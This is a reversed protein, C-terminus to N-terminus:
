HLANPKALTFAEIQATFKDGQETIMNYHGFMSGVNTELVAGSSYEYSAYPAIIPQEGIVGEGQIEQQNQNGDTVVWRRSLLQVNHAATNKITINYSFVFRKANVDSQEAEFKTKVVIQINEQLNCPLSTAQTLLIKDTM